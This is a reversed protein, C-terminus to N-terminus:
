RGKGARRPLPRKAHSALLPLGLSLYYEPSDREYPKDLVIIDYVLKGKPDRVKLSEETNVHAFELPDRTLLASGVLVAREAQRVFDTMRGTFTEFSGPDLVSMVTAEPGGSHLPVAVQANFTRRFSELLELTKRKLWPHDGPAVTWAGEGLARVAEAPGEGPDYVCHPFGYLKCREESTTLGADPRLNELVLDIVRKGDVLALLKDKGFRSSRGGALM